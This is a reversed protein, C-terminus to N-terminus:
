PHPPAGATPGGGLVPLDHPAVRDHSASCEHASVDIFQRGTAATAQDLRWRGPRGARRDGRLHLRDALGPRRPCALPPTDYDGDAGPGYGCAPWPVASPWSSSTTPSTTPGPGTQGFPTVACVILGPRRPRCRTSTSAGAGDAEAPRLTHVCCTPRRACSPAARRRRGSRGGLAQRRQRGLLRPQPRAGPSTTSSPGSPARRRVGRATRGEGRRRRARGAAPRLVRGVADALELVRVGTSAPGACRRRRDRCSGRPPWRASRRRVSLGLLEGLVADNDEGLCPPGRHSCGAPTPRPPRCGSRARGRPAAARGRRQRPHHLPGAGGAAPRARPPRGRGPRRRGAGRGGPPLDMVEYRDRSSTWAELLRDLDDAHEVRGALTAFRPDDTWAPRGMVEVLADWQAETRCSIVVWRDAGAARYAGGPARRRTTGATAPRSGPGGPRGATSCPTSCSRGRCPPPRNSSPSTSTSARGRDPAPPAPRTLIAVAGLYGGVHDLYSFSWGAPPRDPLGVLFTLGTLAQATPGM